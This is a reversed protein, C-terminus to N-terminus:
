LSKWFSIWRLLLKVASEKLGGLSMYFISKNYHQNLTTFSFDTIHDISPTVYFIHDVQMKYKELIFDM